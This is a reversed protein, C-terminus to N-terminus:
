AYSFNYYDSAATFGGSRLAFSFKAFTGSLIESFLKTHCLYLNIIIDRLDTKMTKAFDNSAIENHASYLSILKM